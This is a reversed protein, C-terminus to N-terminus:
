NIILIDDLVGNDYLHGLHSLAYRCHARDHCRLVYLNGNYRYQILYYRRGTPRLAPVANLNRILHHANPGIHGADAHRDDSVCDGLGAYSIGGCDVRTDDHLAVAVPGPVNDSTILGDHFRYDNDATLTIM